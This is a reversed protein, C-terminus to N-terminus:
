VKWDATYIGSAKQRDARRVFVQIFGIKRIGGRNQTIQQEVRDIQFPIGQDEFKNLLRDAEFPELTALLVFEAPDGKDQALTAEADWPLEDEPVPELTEQAPAVVPDCPELINHDLACIKVDDPYEKGCWPCKKM